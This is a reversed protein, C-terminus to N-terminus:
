LTRAPRFGIDSNPDNDRFASRAAGRLEEPDSLWGGGRHVSVGAKAGPSASTKVPDTVKASGLDNTLM